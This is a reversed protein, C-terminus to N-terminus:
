FVWTTNTVRSLHVSSVVSVLSHGSAAPRRISGQLRGSSWMMEEGSRLGGAAGWGHATLQHGQKWTVPVVSAVLVAGRGWGSGSECWGGKGLVWVIKREQLQKDTSGPSIRGGRERTLKREREAPDDAFM